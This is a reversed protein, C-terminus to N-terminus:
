GISANAANNANPTTKIMIAYKYADPLYMLSGNHALNMLMRYKPYLEKRVLWKRVLTQIKVIARAENVLLPSVNHHRLWRLINTHCKDITEQDFHCMIAVQMSRKFLEHDNTIIARLLMHEFEKEM